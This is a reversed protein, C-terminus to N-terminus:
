GGSIVKRKVKNGKLDFYINCGDDFAIAVAYIFYASLKVEVLDSEAGLFATAFRFIVRKKQTLLIKISEFLKLIIYPM